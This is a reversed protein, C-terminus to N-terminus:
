RITLEQNEKLMYEKKLEIIKRNLDKISRSVKIPGDDRIFRKLEGLIYPVAYTTLKVEYSPDFNKAAKIFGLAGIQYLDDADYGRGLFRKAISWILGQNEKVQLELLDKCDLDVNKKSNILSNTM